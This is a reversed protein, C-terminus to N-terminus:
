EGCDALLSRFEAHGISTLIGPVQGVPIEQLVRAAKPERGVRSAWGTRESGSRCWALPRSRGASGTDSTAASSGHFELRCRATSTTM